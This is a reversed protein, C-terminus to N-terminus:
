KGTHACECVCVCISVCYLATQLTFTNKARFPFHDGIKMLLPISFHIDNYEYLPISYPSTLLYIVVLLLLM